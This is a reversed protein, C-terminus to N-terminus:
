ELEVKAKHVKFRIQAEKQAAQLKENTVGLSKLAESTVLQEMVARAEKEETAVHMPKIKGSGEPKKPDDLVFQMVWWCTKINDVNLDKREM